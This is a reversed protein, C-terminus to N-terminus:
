DKSPSHLPPAGLLIFQAIRHLPLKEHIPGPIASLGKLREGLPERSNQGVIQPIPLGQFATAASLLQHHSRGGAREPHTFILPIGSLQNSTIERWDITNTPPLPASNARLASAQREGLIM